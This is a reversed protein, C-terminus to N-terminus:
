CGSRPWPAGNALVAGFGQSRHGFRAAVSQSTVTPVGFSVQDLGISRGPRSADAGCAGRTTHVQELDRRRRRWTRSLPRRPVCRERRRDHTVGPAAGPFSVNATDARPLSQTAWGVKLRSPPRRSRTPSPSVARITFSDMIQEEPIPPWDSARSGTSACRAPDTPPTGPRGQIVANIPDGNVLVLGRGTLKSKVGVKV